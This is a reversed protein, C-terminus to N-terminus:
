AAGTSIKSFQKFRIESVEFFIREQEDPSLKYFVKKDSFKQYSQKYPGTIKDLNEQFLAFDVQHVAKKLNMMDGAQSLFRNRSKSNEYAAKVKPLSHCNILQNKWFKHEIWLICVAITIQEGWSKLYKDLESIFAWYWDANVADEGNKKIIPVSKKNKLELFITNDFIRKAKSLPKGVGTDSVKDASPPDPKNINNDININNNNCSSQEAKEPVKNRKKRCETGSQGSSQEEKKLYFATSQEPEDELLPVKNRNEEDIGTSQEPKKGAFIVSEVWLDTVRLQRKNDSKILLGKEILAEISKRVGRESMGIFDAIYQKSPYAWGTKKQLHYVMDAICYESFSIKLKHRVDHQITTFRIGDMNLRRYHGM